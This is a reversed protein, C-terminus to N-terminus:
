RVMAVADATQVGYVMPPDVINDGLERDCAGKLAEWADDPTSV